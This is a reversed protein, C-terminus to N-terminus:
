GRHGVGGRPRRRRRRPLPLSEGGEDEGPAEELVLPVENEDENESLTVESMDEGRTAGALFTAGLEGALDAAADAADPDFGFHTAPESPSHHYVQVEDDLSPKAGDMEAPPNTKGHLPPATSEDIDDPRAFALWAREDLTPRKESPDPEGAGRTIRGRRSRTAVDTV